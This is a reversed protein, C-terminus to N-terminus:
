LSVWWCGMHRRLRLLTRSPTSGNALTQELRLGAPARRVVAQPYYDGDAGDAAAPAIPIIDVLPRKAIGDLRRMVSYGARSSMGVWHYVGALRNVDRSDIATTIEYVLDQLNSSCATRYLRAAGAGSAAQRPLRDVAGIDACKRDTYISSGDSGACRRVQAQSAPASGLAAILALFCSVPVRPSM